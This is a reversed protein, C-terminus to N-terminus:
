SLQAHFFTKYGGALDPRFNHYNEQFIIKFIQNQFYVLPCIPGSDSVQTTTVLLPYLGYFIFGM